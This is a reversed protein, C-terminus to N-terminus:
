PGREFASLCLIKVRSLRLPLANEKFDLIHITGLYGNCFLPKPASDISLMVYCLM